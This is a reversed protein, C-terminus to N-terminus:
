ANGVEWKHIEDNELLVKYSANVERMYVVMGESKFGPVVKSGNEVLDDRLSKVDLDYFRGRYLLPVIYLNPVESRAETPHLVEYWRPANFLSFRKETLGYGRQIGSGWWEGYHDGPGLIEVLKSANEFVWGAFGFNDTSKGPLLLRKRSQAWVSYEAGAYDVHAVVMTHDELPDYPRIRVASNSGDIKETVTVQEKSMRPISPWPKFEM